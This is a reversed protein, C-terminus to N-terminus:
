KPEVANGEPMTLDSSNGTVVKSLKYGYSNFVAMSPFPKKVGNSILFIAQGIKILSGNLHAPVIYMEMIDGDPYKVDAANAKVVKSLKYGYSNFVAMSPFPKKTGGTLLYIAGGSQILTGDKHSGKIILKTKMIEGDPLGQDAESADIVASLKYGYSNFVAMSPFPKKVGNSIIYIAGGIKILSGNLHAPVIYMEMIDGDPYKV